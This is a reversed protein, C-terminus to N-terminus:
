DNNSGLVVKNQSDDLQNEGGNKLFNGLNKKQKRLESEAKNIVRIKNKTFAAKISYGFIEWCLYTSADNRVLM